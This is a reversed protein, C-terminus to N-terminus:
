FQGSFVDSIFTWLGSCAVVTYVIYKLKEADLRGFIKGGAGFGALIGVVGLLIPLIVHVSFMGNVARITNTYLSIFSLFVQMTALYALNDKCVRLFYIAMPPGAVNFLPNIVGTVAGVGLGVPLAGKQPDSHKKQKHARRASIILYIGLVFLFLGLWKKLNEVNSNAMLRTILLSIVVYPMMPIILKKWQIHRFQQVVLILSGICSIVGVVILADSFSQFLLLLPMLLTALGFGSIRQVLASVFCCVIVLLLVM